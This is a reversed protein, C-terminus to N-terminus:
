YGNKIADYFAAGINLREGIGELWALGQLIREEQFSRYIKEKQSKSIPLNELKPIIKHM